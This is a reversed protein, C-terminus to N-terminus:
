QDDFLGSKRMAEEREKINRERLKEYPCLKSKPLPDIPTAMKEKLEKYKQKRKESKEKAREEAWWKFHLEDAKESQRKEEESLPKYICTDIEEPENPGTWYWEGSEGCYDWVGEKRKEMEKEKQEREKEKEERVEQNIEDILDPKKKSLLDSYTEGKRVFEKWDSVESRKKFEILRGEERFIKMGQRKKLKEDEKKEETRKKQSERKRYKQMIKEYEKVEKVEHFKNETIKNECKSKARRARM